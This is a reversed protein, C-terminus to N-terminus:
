TEVLTTQPQSEGNALSFFARRIDDSIRAALSNIAESTARERVVQLFARAQDLGQVTPNLIWLHSVAESQRVRLARLDAVL